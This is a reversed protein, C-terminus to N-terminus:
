TGQHPIDLRDLGVPGPILDPWLLGGALIVLGVVIVYTCCYIRADKM